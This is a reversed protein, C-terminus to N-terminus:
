CNGIVFINRGFDDDLDVVIVTVVVFEGPFSLAEVDLLHVSIKVPNGSHECCALFVTIEPGFIVAASHNLGKDCILGARNSAGHPHFLMKQHIELQLKLMFWNIM